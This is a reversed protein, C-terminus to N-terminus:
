YYEEERNMIRDVNNEIESSKVLKDFWSGYLEQQKALMIASYISDRKATFDSLDPMKREILKFIVTGQEYDAPKSIQGPETLSFAAGIAGPYRRLEKVYAERDFEDVETYDESFMKAAKQISSGNQIEAYIAAATDHCLQAVMDKVLDMSVKEDVDEYDAQGSPRKEAVRIVFFASNNAMIDSITGVENDFAFKNAEQNGGLYQVNKGPFFLATQKLPMGVDKAAQLFDKDNAAMLFEEIRNYAQDLTQQSAFAKILIHSAHAKEVPEKEKKGRAVEMETKFDHLKIVHWGFQTRVPESVDDKKMNFVQRDFEEVMQGKPFWGLDGGEEASRDESYDSAMQAFDSGAKISDYIAKARNYSVEWDYPAPKKEVMAIQLSARQDIPYDDLHAQYYTQLEEDTPKPPPQSFRGYDVNVMGVKIKEATNMYFEKIEPETVIAAQIVIEQMKLKLIDPIVSAEVSAWFPAAQPNVMANLYKQYDFKGGTRFDPLSQLQPPPTLRLYAYLEEDTVTMNHKAVEQMVLRDHLLQNWANQQLERRKEDSLEDVSDRYQSQYLNEYIRNYQQWDIEEGNIVAAINGSVYDRRSSFGMGWELVIMAGFFVLVIIIIPLIMKRLADFM